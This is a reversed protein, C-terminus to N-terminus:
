RKPPPQEEGSYVTDIEGIKDGDDAYATTGILRETDLHGTM